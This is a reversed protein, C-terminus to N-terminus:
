RSFNHFFSKVLSNIRPFERVKDNAFLGILRDYSWVKTTFDREERIQRDMSFVLEVWSSFEQTLHRRTGGEVVIYSRGNQVNHYFERFTDGKALTYVAGMGGTHSDTTAVLGKGYKKALTSVILNKETLDQM